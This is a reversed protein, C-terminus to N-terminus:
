VQWSVIFQTETASVTKLEVEYSKVRTCCLAAGISKGMGGIMCDLYLREPYIMQLVRGNASSQLSKMTVGRRYKSWRKETALALVAPSMVFMLSRMLPSSYSEKMTDFCFQLYKEDSRCIIDRVLANLTMFHVEPLWQNKSWDGSMADKVANPLDDRQLEAQYKKRIAVAFESVVQYEPYSNIGQPLGSLYRYLTPYRVPNITTDLM